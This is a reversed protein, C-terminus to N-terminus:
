ALVVRPADLPRIAIRWGFQALVPDPEEVAGVAKAWQMKQVFATNGATLAQGLQAQWDEPYGGQAIWGHIMEGVAQFIFEYPRLRPIYATGQLALGVLREVVALAEKERAGVFALDEMKAVPVRHEVFYGIALEEGTIASHGPHGWTFRKVAVADPSVRGQPYEWPGEGWTGIARLTM